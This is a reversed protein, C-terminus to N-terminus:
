SLASVNYRRLRALFISTLVGKAYQCIDCTDARVPRRALVLMIRTLDGDAAIEEVVVRAGRAVIAVQRMLRSIMPHWGTSMEKAAVARLSCATIGVDIHRRRSMDATGESGQAVAGFSCVAAMTMHKFTRVISVSTVTHIMLLVSARKRVNIVGASQALGGFLLRLCTSCVLRIHGAVLFRLHVLVVVVVRIAVNHHAGIVFTVAKGLLAIKNGERSSCYVAHVDHHHIM